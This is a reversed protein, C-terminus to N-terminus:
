RPIVLVQGEILHMPDKIKGKNAKYIRTWQSSDGYIEPKAAISKLTDGRKVVYTTPKSECIDKGANYENIAENVTSLAKEFENADYAAEAEELKAKSADYKDGACKKINELKGKLDNIKNGAEEKMRVIAEAKLKAENAYQISSTAYKLVEPANKEEYFAKAKDYDDIAKNLPDPAFEEAGAEKAEKIATKAEEMLPDYKSVGPCGALLMSVLGAFLILALYRRM